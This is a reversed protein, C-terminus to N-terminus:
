NVVPYVDHDYNHSNDHGASYEMMQADTWMFITPHDVRPTTDFHYWGEGIDVLNWYHETSDPIKAIDMNKIGAMTLLVKATCAYVYCDGRGGALGEYAARVWNGKASDNIYGIHTKTYTYIAELKDMDSMEPTIIRALVEDALRNVEEEDYTAAIVTVKVTATDTNGALDRATYTVSYEGEESLNVGSADVELELGEPCNDRVDVMKKYSVSAGKQVTFDVAGSIVPAEEDKLLTLQATKVTENGGEDTFVLEVEQTGIHTLDPETRFTGTVTTVDELLVVFDEAKRPALAYREINQVEVVPPVTDVVHLMCTYVEGDARIQVQHDAVKTYDIEEVGTLFEAERAEIVFEDLGPAVSGAEVNLDAMVPMVFLESRVITFNRGRDALIIEVTQLGPKNFDPEEVYSVTVATADVINTVFKDARCVTGIGVKAQVADATPAVTDQIILTCSHTFLGSKVRIHYEGPVGTDFPQSDQAFVADKDGNKLFDSATVQVGAEVRCVKYALSDIYFWGGAAALGLFLLILFPALGHRRERRRRRRRRRRGRDPRYARENM